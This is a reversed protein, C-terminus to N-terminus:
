SSDYLVLPHGAILWDLLAQLPLPPQHSWATWCRWLFYAPELWARVRRLARPWCRWPRPWAPDPVTTADWTSESLIWQLRQAAHAQAGVVLETNALATLTKNSEAPLLLGAFYQRFRERQITRSFLDDFKTPLWYLKSRPPPPRRAISADGRCGCPRLPSAQRARLACDSLFSELGRHGGVQAAYAELLDLIPPFAPMRPM